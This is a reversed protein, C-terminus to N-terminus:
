QRIINTVNSKVQELNKFLISNIGLIKSANINNLNDDIFITESPILNYKKLLELYIMEDPKCVKLQYSYIGGDVLRFFNFSSIYKYASESINSLLYIKYGEEKLKQLYEISNQKIVHMKVWDDSLIEKLHKSYEPHNNILIDRLKAITFTGRDSEIWFKSKFIIEELIYSTKDDYGFTGIYDRPMFDFLVNGIDFVINNIMM